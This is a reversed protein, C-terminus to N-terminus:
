TKDLDLEEFLGNLKPDKKIAESQTKRPSSRSSIILSDEM